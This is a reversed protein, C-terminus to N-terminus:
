TDPWQYLVSGPKFAVHVVVFSYCVNRVHIAFFHSEVIKSALALMALWSQVEYSKRGSPSESSNTTMQKGLQTM